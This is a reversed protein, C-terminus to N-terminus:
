KLQKLKWVGVCKEAKAYFNMKRSFNVYAITNDYDWNFLYFFGTECVLNYSNDIKFEAKM